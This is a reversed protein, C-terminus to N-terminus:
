GKSPRAPPPPLQPTNPRPHTPPTCAVGIYVCMCMDFPIHPRKFLKRKGREFARAHARTYTHTYKHTHIPTYTHICTHVFTHIYTHIYTHTRTLTCRDFPINLRKFFKRQSREFASLHLVSYDLVDVSMVALGAQDKNNRFEHLKEQPLPPPTFLSPLPQHPLQLPPPTLPVSSLHFLHHSPTCQVSSVTCQACCGRGRKKKSM